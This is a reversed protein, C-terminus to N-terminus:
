LVLDLVLYDLDGVVRLLVEGPDRNQREAVLVLLSGEYLPVLNRFKPPKQVIELSPLRIFQKVIYHVPM